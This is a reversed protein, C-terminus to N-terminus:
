TFTGHSKKLQYLEQVQRMAEEFPMGFRNHLPSIKVAAEIVRFMPKVLFKSPGSMEVVKRFQIVSQTDWGGFLATMPFYGFIAILIFLPLLPIVAIFFGYKVFLSDYVVLKILFGIGICLAASLGPAVFVQYLPIKISFCQRQVCIYMTTDKIVYGIIRTFVLTFILGNFTGPLNWVVIFLLHLTVHICQEFCQGYFLVNPKNAGILIQNAPNIFSIIASAIVSPIIFPIAALYYTLGLAQFGDPLVFYVVGFITFFFGVMQGSYRWSQGLIYQTLKVKKNMYSESYQPTLNLFSKGIYGGLGAGFGQLAIFAVYQPVHELWILLIYYAVVGNLLGPLSTKLGFIFTEKVLQWDFEIRFCDLPRIGIIRMAKGFFHASLIVGIFDDVYRGIAAGIAIGLIVGIEPHAQGYVKGLYVFLLETTRQIVQGQVFNLLNAKDFHQLSNLLGSFVSLFGPYQFTSYILMIWTLYAMPSGPAWVFAILAIATVQMLGTLMQYWIFYQIYHLMKRPNSIRSEPIFRDMTMHTGIDFTFFMLSFFSGITDLYGQSDPFPFFYALVAGSLFIGTILEILTLTLNYWFGAVPKHFGIQEWLEETPTLESPSDGNRSSKLSQPPEPNPSPDPNM